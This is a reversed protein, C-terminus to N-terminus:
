QEKMQDNFATVFQELESLQRDPEALKLNGNDDTLSWTKGDYTLTASKGRLRGRGVSSEGGLPLDGTWLDKLLFLLLGVEHAKAGLLEAHISVETDEAGFTPQESFLGTPYAGGTFRDIKVRSQVLEPEVPKRIETEHVILRSAKLPRRDANDKARIGFIAEVDEWAQRAGLTNAIRLARARLVGALSTGSLVPVDKEGRRSHLHVADPANVDSSGSRILLSSDLAFTARLTFRRREDLAADQTQVGLLAAIDSGTKAASHDRQLWAILDARRERANYHVVTWHGAIRCQGFGRRKRAGMGIEGRELGQLAIALARLLRQQEVPGDSLLLEFRLMFRAGAALLEIDFKKGDEATRTRPDIAVGDRLEIDPRSPTESLADHTMLLSHAGESEGPERGFLITCLSNRGKRRGDGVERTRLYNRLAGAVSAGTLLARQEVADLLLPMDLLDDDEGGGFRAPTQLELLGEVWVREVIERSNAFQPVSPQAQGQKQSTGNM